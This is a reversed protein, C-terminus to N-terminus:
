RGGTGGSTRAFPGIAFGAMPGKAAALAAHQAAAPGACTRWSGEALRCRAVRGSARRVAIFIMQLIGKGSGPDPDRFSCPFESFSRRGAEALWAGLWLLGLSVVLM